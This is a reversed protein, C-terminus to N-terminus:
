TSSQELSKEKEPQPKPPLPITSVIVGSIVGAMGVIALWTVMLDFPAFLTLAAPRYVMVLLISVWHSTCYPCSLPHPRPAVLRELWDRLGQAIDARTLTVSIASTAFALYLLVFFKELM